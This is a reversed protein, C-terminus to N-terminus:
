RPVVKVARSLVWPEKTDRKDPVTAVVEGRAFGREAMWDRTRTDLKNEEKSDVPDLVYVPQIAPDLQTAGTPEVANRGSTFTLIRGLKHRVLIWANPETHERVADSLDPLSAFRGRKYHELSGSPWRQEIILDVDRALNTGIFVLLVSRFLWDGSRRPLKHNLWM